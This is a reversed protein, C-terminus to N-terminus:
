PNYLDTNYFDMIENAMELWSKAPSLPNLSVSTNFDTIAEARSGVKWHLKGREYYLNANNPQALIEADIKGIQKIINDNESM